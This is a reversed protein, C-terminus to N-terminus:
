GGDLIGQRAAMMAAKIKKPDRINNARCEEAAKVMAAEIREARPKDTMSNVSVAAGEVIPM